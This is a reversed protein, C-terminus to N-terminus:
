INSFHTIFPLTANQMKEDTNYKGICLVIHADYVIKILLDFDVPDDYFFQHIM